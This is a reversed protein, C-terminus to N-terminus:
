SLPILKAPAQSGDRVSSRSRESLKSFDTIDNKPVLLPARRHLYNNVLHLFNPPIKAAWTPNCKLCSQASQLKREKVVNTLSAIAVTLGLWTKCQKITGPSKALIKPGTFILMLSKDRISITERRGRHWPRRSDVSTPELLIWSGQDWTKHCTRLIHM